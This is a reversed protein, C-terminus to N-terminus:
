EGILESEDDSGLQSFLNGARASLQEPAVDVNLNLNIQRDPVKGFMRNLMREREEGSGKLSNGLGVILMGDYTSFTKGLFAHDDMAKLITEIGHKEALLKMRPGPDQLGTSGLGRGKPNASVGKIWNPSGKRVVPENILEM